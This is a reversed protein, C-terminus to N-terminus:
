PGTNAALSLSSAISVNTSVWSPIVTSFTYYFVAGIKKIKLLLLLRIAAYINGPNEAPNKTNKVYYNQARGVMEM